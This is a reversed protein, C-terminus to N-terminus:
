LTQFPYKDRKKGWRSSMHIFVLARLQSSRHVCRKSLKEVEQVHEQTYEKAQVCVGVQTRGQTITERRM